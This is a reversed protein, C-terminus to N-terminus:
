RGERIEVHERDAVTRCVPCTVPPAFLGPPCEQPIALVGCLPEGRHYDVGRVIVTQDIVAHYVERVHGFPGPEPMCGVHATLQGTM